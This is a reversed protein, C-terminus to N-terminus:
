LKAGDFPTITIRSLDVDEACRLNIAVM